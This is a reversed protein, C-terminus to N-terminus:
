EAKEVDKMFDRILTPVDEFHYPRERRGIHRHDGKGRENDYGVIREGNVIYVLRYKYTHSSPHISEPVKWIVGEIRGLRYAQLFRHILTAMMPSIM